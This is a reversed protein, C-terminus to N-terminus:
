SFVVKEKKNKEGGVLFLIRCSVELSLNIDGWQVYCYVVFHGMGASKQSSM